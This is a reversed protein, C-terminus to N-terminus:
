HWAAGVRFLSSGPLKLTRPTSWVVIRAEVRYGDSLVGLQDVPDAVVNVRQEEVGLASVKTFGAPEVRRVRARLAQPGGWNELLMLAGPRIRVADASLVDVVIEFRAPDAVTMLPTGAAVTRTSRELVRLVVGDAPATLTLPRAGAAAALAAQAAQVDAEAARMRFRAADLGAQASQLATGARELTQASVYQARRLSAIREQDSRALALEADARRADEAAQRSLARAAALRAATEQRQREDLPVPRVVAVAAGRRVPDGDRLTVRELSGAVPATVTYVDHARVIGLNDVTVDLAGETVGATEVAVPRPAFLVWLLLALLLAGGAYPLYHRLPRRHETM